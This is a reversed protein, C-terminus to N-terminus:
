ARMCGNMCAHIYKSHFARPPSASLLQNQEGTSDPPADMLGEFVDGGCDSGDRPTVFRLIAAVAFAMLLSAKQGGNSWNSEVTPLLRELIKPLANQCVFFTSHEMPLKLRSIWENYVSEADGASMPAWATPEPVNCDHLTHQLGWAICQVIKSSARCLGVYSQVSCRAICQVIKRVGARQGIIAAAQDRHCPQVRPKPPLVEARLWGRWDGCGVVVAVCVNFWSFPM